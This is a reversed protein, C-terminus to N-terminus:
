KGKPTYAYLNHENQEEALDKVKRIPNEIQSQDENDAMFLRDM